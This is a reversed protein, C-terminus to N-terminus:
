FDHNKAGIYFGTKPFYKQLRVSKQLDLNLIFQNVVSRYFKQDYTCPQRGWCPAGCTPGFHEVSGDLLGVKSCGNYTIIVNPPSTISSRQELMAGTPAAM